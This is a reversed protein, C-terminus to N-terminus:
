TQEEVSPALRIQSLMGTTYPISHGQHRWWDNMYSAIANRSKRIIVINEANSTEAQVTFNFSGTIVSVDDVIVVKNHAIAHRSDIWCTVGAAHLEPLVTVRGPEINIRDFVVDVIVRRDHAAILAAAILKSTFTYALVRVSVKAKDIEAVIAATIGGKPSLYPTLSV